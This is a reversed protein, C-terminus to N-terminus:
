APLKLPQPGLTAITFDRAPYRHLHELIAPVKLGEIASQIEDLPRVRNLFYWDSALTSARAATSEQRMILSSKLGIKVRDLEDEEIGDKLIRLEELMRDLTEQALEPRAAAFGVISARDRFSEYSAHISYCLGHKERVNSFLRSSMDLSLVGVAGRALYFDPHGMPVSPYALAIQTQEIDKTLQSSKPVMTAPQIPTRKAGTWDGFTREVHDKLKPWDIDGAVALLVDTPHYLKQYQRRVDEITTSKIGEETGRHDRGLPEPYYNRRLELIVRRQPEDEISALDQLSLSQAAELEEEPIHPHRLIDGYLSIADYVHRSLCSGSMQVNMTGASEGRDIGLNDFADSLERSNRSGAGRSILDCVLGALGWRGEPDHAAGAPVLFNFSASRVGSMREGLLTMGNSLSHIFIEQPM